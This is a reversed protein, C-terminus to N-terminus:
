STEDASLRFGYAILTLSYQRLYPNELNTFATGIEREIVEGVAAIKRAFDHCTQPNVEELPCGGRCLGFMECQNSCQNRKAIASGLVESYVENYLKEPIGQAASYMKTQEKKKECFYVQDDRDLYLIRGMCSSYRCDNIVLGTTLSGIFDEFPEFGAANKDHIWSEFFQAFEEGTLEYGKLKVSVGAFKWIEYLKLFSAYDECQLVLKELLMKEKYRQVDKVSMAESVEAEVSIAYQNLQKRLKKVTKWQNTEVTVDVCFEVKKGIEKVTDAIHDLVKATLPVKDFCFHLLLETEEGQVLRSIMNKLIDQKEIIYDEVIFVKRKM